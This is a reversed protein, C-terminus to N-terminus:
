WIRDFLEPALVLAGVVAAFISAVLVAGSAIDLADGVASNYEITVARSLREIASNGLEAVFVLGICILLLALRVWDLHLILALTLVSIAVPIHVYFSSEGRIGKAIGGFATKFKAVWGPNSFKSM